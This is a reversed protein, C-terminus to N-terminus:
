NGKVYKTELYETLPEPNYEESFNRKLLEKPSYTGGWRHIREGLWNRISLFDGASIRESLDFDRRIARLIMGDVVNGITYSPFTAISGSSWHIDQLAGESDNNPEVGLYGDITENWMSPIENVGLDGKMVKKEIEYRLAIHFNYTLEDADVRILSPRVLNFYVYLSREDYPPLFDLRKKLLPLSVRAFEKSRGVMNELFRSQSEAIGSSPGMRIPTYDLEPDVQLGHIAHGCEHITAFMSSRFSKGEYRTTIRVDNVSMGITFPHTSVDMRFRKEPMSLLKLIDSNVAEMIGADYAVDELPHSSKPFERGGDGVKSLIRKLAPVLKAFIGDLDSVTLGEEPVDLLADYPHAKYGLKEAEERKLEIIKELFPAFLSYDGKKRAARWNLTSEARIKQLKELLQPPVKTNYDIQRRLVRVVGREEDNLDGEQKEAREVLERLSLVLKQRMLALEANAQARPKAGEEPMHTELDWVLVATSHNLAWIPRYKKLIDQITANNFPL